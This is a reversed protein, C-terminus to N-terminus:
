QCAPKNLSNILYDRVVYDANTIMKINILLSYRDPTLGPAQLPTVRLTNVECLYSSRSPHIRVSTASHGICVETGRDSVECGRGVLPANGINHKSKM